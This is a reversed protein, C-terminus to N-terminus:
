ATFDKSKYSSLSKRSTIVQNHFNKKQIKRIFSKRCGIRDDKKRARKNTVIRREKLLKMERLNM